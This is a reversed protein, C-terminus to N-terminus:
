GRKYLGVLETRTIIHDEMAKEIDAKKASAPLNLKTDLAYLKFFYRHTGGPPCPGGYGPTGFDTKGELGEPAKGEAIEATQPPINLVTWHVWDGVPADPDDVILVLSKAEAPVEAIKLPPSLDEGDCTYKVPISQNNEFAPSTLKM